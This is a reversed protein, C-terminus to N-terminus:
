SSNIAAQKVLDPLNPIKNICSVRDILYNWFSIRLKRCTKNLSIFTDRCLKGDNSRTSGSIKRRIVHERIDNESLNNHLAIKPRELVWLLSPKIKSIRQLAEKLLLYSTSTGLLRDLRRNIKVKSREIPNQKYKVLAEYLNWFRRQINSKQKAQTNTLPTLERIKREAHLWCLANHVNNNIEPNSIAFRRAEDSIITLENGDTRKALGSMLSLEIITNQRVSSTIGCCNIFRRIDQIRSFRREGKYSNDCRNSMRWTLYYDIGQAQAARIVEKNLCFLPNDGHLLKLFELRSKSKTTKFYAFHENGVHTCQYQEGQHRAGTDDAHIYTSSKLGTELLGEKEAHYSDKNKTLINSLEGESIQIEWDHLQVQLRQQTVRQGYYQYLLFARLTPGYHYGIYEKPLDAIKYSGDPLQWRALKFLTNHKEIQIDQVFYYSYGKFRSGLPLESANVNITKEEDVSPKIGVDSSANASTKNQSSSKNKSHKKKSRFKPKCSLKKLRQNEQKLGDVEKKLAEIIELLRDVLPTHESKHIYPLKFEEKGMM